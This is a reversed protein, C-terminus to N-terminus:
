KKPSNFHKVFNAVRKETTEPEKDNEKDRSNKSNRKSKEKSITALKIEESKANCICIKM